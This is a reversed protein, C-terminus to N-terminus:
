GVFEAIIERELAWCKEEDGRVEGLLAVIWWRLGQWKEPRLTAHLQGSGCAARLPGPARQVLGPRAPEGSGGNAPRGDVDSRWFAVRAGVASLALLRARQSASIAAGDIVSRWYDGSGSGSGDGDGYGYGSGDGYGSGLKPMEGCIVEM